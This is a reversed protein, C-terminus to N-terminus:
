GAMGYIYSDARLRGTASEHVAASKAQPSHKKKHCRQRGLVGYLGQSNRRERLPKLGQRPVRAWGRRWNECSQAAERSRHMSKWSRYTSWQAVALRMVAPRSILGSTHGKATSAHALHRRRYCEVCGGGRQTRETGRLRKRPRSGLALILAKATADEVAGHTGAEGILLFVVVERGLLSAPVRAPGLRITFKTLHRIFHRSSQHSQINEAGEGRGGRGREPHHLFIHGGTGATATSASQSKSRRGLWLIASSSTFCASLSAESSSPSPESRADPLLPRAAKRM